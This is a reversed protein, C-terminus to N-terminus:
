QMWAHWLFVATGFLVLCLLVTVLAVISSQPTSWDDDNQQSPPNKATQIQFRDRYREFERRVITLHKATDIGKARRYDRELCGHIIMRAHDLPDVSTPGM